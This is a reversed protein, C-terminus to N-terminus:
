LRDCRVVYGEILLLLIIFDTSMHISEMEISAIIMASANFEIQCKVVLGSITLGVTKHVFM